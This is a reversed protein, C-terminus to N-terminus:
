VQMDQELRAHMAPQFAAAADFAKRDLTKVFCFYGTRGGAAIESSDMANLPVAQNSQASLDAHTEQM